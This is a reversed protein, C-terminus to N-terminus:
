AGDLATRVASAHDRLAEKLRRRVGPRLLTARLGALPSAVYRHTGLVLGGGEFPLFGFTMQLADYGRTAYFRRVLQIALDPGPHFVHHSLTFAPAGDIRERLWFFRHEVDPMSSRPYEMFCRYLDPLERVLLSDQPFAARLQEAPASHAGSARAYPAIGDLGGERYARYRGALVRRLAANAADVVASAAGPGREGLAERAAAFHAIEEESLNFDTGPKARLMEEALESESGGFGAAGFGSPNAVADDLPGFALVSPNTELARGARVQDFFEEFPRRFRAAVVVAPHGRSSGEVDRLVLEGRRLEERAKADIGLYALVGDATTPLHHYFARVALDAGDRERLSAGIEAARRQIEPRACARLAEALLESTLRASPIPAPGAGARSVMQGWFPQDGFFPVVVTPRGARLGTATTGAGGHHCVAACRPFLWDHPCDGVLHVHPPPADGGLGGWGKSVIGRRGAAALADFLTRTMGEPDEVVCSGFGIYIPPEGAELFALLDRPPEYGGKGELFVFDAVDIHGPWDHPKPILWPSWLYCFPVARDCLANAGSASVSLPELGLTETRFRNILDGTGAWMLLDVVNYSLWNRMGHDGEYSLTALPHPYATTPTWPMTFIMQLPVRLAEAVHVHGYCPPNAIIADASFPESGSRGPDPQTCAGWTSEIIETLAKRQKPVDSRIESLKTPVLKGGTRVMYAILEKPDGGLPYFELGHGEVFERFVAHTALRVRHGDRQLRRGIGVFPQVDGRTGTVLIAITLPPPTAGLAVPAPPRALELEGAAHVWGELVRSAEAGPEFDIDVRGDGSFSLEHVARQAYDRTRQQILRHHFFSKAADRSRARM